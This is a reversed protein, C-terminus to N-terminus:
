NSFKSWNAVSFSPLDTRAVKLVTTTINAENAVHALLMALEARDLQLLGDLLGNDQNISEVVSDIDVDDITFQLSSTDTVYDRGLLQTINSRIIQHLSSGTTGLSFKHVRPYTSISKTLASAMLRSAIKFSTCTLSM